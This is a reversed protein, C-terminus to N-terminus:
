YLLSRLGVAEGNGWKYRLKRFAEPLNATTNQLAAEWADVVAKTGRKESASVHKAGAEQLIEAVGDLVNYLTSSWVAFFYVILIMLFAM